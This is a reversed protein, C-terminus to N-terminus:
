KLDLQNISGGVKPLGKGEGHSCQNPNLNKHNPVYLELPICLQVRLLPQIWPPLEKVGEAQSRVGLLFGGELQSLDLMGAESHDAEQAEGDLRGGGSLAWEVVPGGM